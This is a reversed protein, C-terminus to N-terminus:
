NLGELLSVAQSQLVQLAEEQGCICQQLWTEYKESLQWWIPPEGEMRHVCVDALLIIDELQPREHAQELHHYRCGKEFEEPLKWSRMLLAGVETHPANGFQEEVARFTKKGLRYEALIAEMTEKDLKWLVVKGLDHFLGATFCLDPQFFELRDAFFKAFIAVKASHLWFRRSEEKPFYRNHFVEFVSVSMVLTSVTTFGLIIIAEKVTKIQRPFGYFASNALKLLKSSISADFQIVNELQEATSNPDDLLFTVRAMVDPLTPLEDLFNLQKLVKEIL